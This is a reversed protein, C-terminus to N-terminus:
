PTWAQVEAVRMVTVEPTGPGAVTHYGAAAPSGVAMNIMIEYPEGPIAVGGGATVQFRRHGDFFWTVSRGPIFRVGYTHYGASVDTGIDQESARQGANSWYNYHATRNPPAGPLETFGGEWGDLENEPDCAVACLFWLSPWMGESTDPMKIRAQVYWARRAPLTFRGETNITGSVWPYTGAYQGTNRRATIALGDNVTLQAPSYMAQNTAGPQNFGSYPFPLYGHDDWRIGRDGVYAVWKAPNLASGAFRDEFIKHTFGPPAPLQGAAPAAPACGLVAGLALAM